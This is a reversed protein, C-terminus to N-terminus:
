IYIHISIAIYIYIYIYQKIDTRGEYGEYGEYGDNRRIRGEKMDTRGEHGDKM